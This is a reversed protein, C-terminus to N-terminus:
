KIFIVFIGILCFFLGIAKISGFSEHMFIASILVTLIIALTSAVPYATSLELKSLVIAYFMFGIGYLIISCWLFPNGIFWKLNGIIGRSLELPHRTMGLKLMVQAFVNIGVSALLLIKYM